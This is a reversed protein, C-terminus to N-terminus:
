SCFKLYLPTHTYTHITVASIQKELEEKSIMSHEDDEDDDDEEEDDEDKKNQVKEKNNVIEHPEIKKHDEANANDRHKKKSPGPSLIKKNIIKAKEPSYFSGKKSSKSPSHFSKETVNEEASMLAEFAKNFTIRDVFTGNNNNSSSNNSDKNTSSRM